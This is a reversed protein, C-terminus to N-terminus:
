FIASGAQNADKLRKLAFAEGQANTAKSVNGSGGRQGRGAVFLTMFRRKVDAEDHPAVPFAADFLELSVIQIDEFAQMTAEM